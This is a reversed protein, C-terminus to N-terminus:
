LSLSKMIKLVLFYVPAYGVSVFVYGAIPNFGALYSSVSLCAVVALGLCLLFAHRSANRKQSINYIDYGWFAAPVVSFFLFVETGM